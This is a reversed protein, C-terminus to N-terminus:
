ITNSTAVTIFKLTNLFTVWNHISKFVKEIKAKRQESYNVKAAFIPRLGFKFGYRVLSHSDKVQGSSNFDVNISNGLLLYPKKTDIGGSLRLYSNFVGDNVQINNGVPTEEHLLQINLTDNNSDSQCRKDLELMLITAHPYVRSPFNYNKGRELPHSTEYIKESTPSIGEYEFDEMSSLIENFEPKQLYEIIKLLSSVIEQRPHLPVLSAHYIEVILLVTPITSYLQEPKSKSLIKEYLRFLEIFLESIYKLYLQSNKSNDKLM